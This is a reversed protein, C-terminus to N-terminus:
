QQRSKNLSLAELAFRRVLNFVECFKSNELADGAHKRRSVGKRERPRMLSYNELLDLSKEEESEFGPQGKLLM